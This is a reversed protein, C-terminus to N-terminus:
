DIFSIVMISYVHMFRNLKTGDFTRTKITEGHTHLSPPPPFSLVLRTLSLKLFHILPIVHNKGDATVGDNVCIFLIELIFPLIQVLAMNRAGFCEKSRCCYEPGSALVSGHSNFAQLKTAIVKRKKCYDHDWELKWKILLIIYYM